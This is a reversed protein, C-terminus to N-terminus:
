CTHEGGDWTVRIAGNIVTCLHEPLLTTVDIEVRRAALYHDLEVAEEGDVTEITFVPAPDASSYMQWGFRAPDGSGLRSIPIALQIVFFAGIVVLALVRSNRWDSM